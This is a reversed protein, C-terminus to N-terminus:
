VPAVTLCSALNLIHPNRVLDEHPTGNLDSKIYVVTLLCSICVVMIYKCVGNLFTNFDHRSIKFDIWVSTTKM